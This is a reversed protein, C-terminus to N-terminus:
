PFRQLDVDWYWTLGNTVSISGTACVIELDRSGTCTVPSHAQTMVSNLAISPAAPAGSTPTLPITNGTPETTQLHAIATVASTGVLRISAGVIRYNAPITCLKIRDANTVTAAITTADFQGCLYGVQGTFAKTNAAALAVTSIQAM